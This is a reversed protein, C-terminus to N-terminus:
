PAVDPFDSRTLAHSSLSGDGRPVESPAGAIRFRVRNVGPIGTATYVLQAIGAAQQDTAIRSAGTGELTITAVGNRVGVHEIAVRPDLVSRL